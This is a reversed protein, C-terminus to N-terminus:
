MFFEIYYKLFITSQQGNKQTIHYTKMLAEWYAMGIVSPHLGEALKSWATSPSVTSMFYLLVHLLAALCLHHLQCRGSQVGILPCIEKCFEFLHPAGNLM